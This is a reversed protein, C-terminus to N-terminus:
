EEENGAGVRFTHGDPHRIHCEYVGWPMDTPPWPAVISLKLALEYMADVEAPSELWWSMWVSGAQNDWPEQPM